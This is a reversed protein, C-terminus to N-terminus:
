PEGQHGAWDSGLLALCHLQVDILAEEDTGIAARLLQWWFVGRDEWRPRLYRAHGDAIRHVEQVSLRAIMDAVRPAMGFLLSVVRPLTRALSWAELLIEHLLPAAGEQTFVARPENLHMSEWPSHAVRSWWEPQQFNLDVLLVPCRGVRECVRGDLHNGLERLATLAPSSPLSSGSEVAQALLAVSRENLQRATVLMASGAWIHPVLATPHFDKKERM